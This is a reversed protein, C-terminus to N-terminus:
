QQAQALQAVCKGFANAKTAGTGYKMKFAVADTMREAKCHKAANSTATRETSSAANAEAKMCRGLANAGRKGTGYFEAFTKGGHTAAFGADAREVKCAAKAEHRNEHEARTWAAVCKGFTAYTSAFTAAGMSSELANCVRAGNSKDAQVGPDALAAVPLVAAVFVAVIMTKLKM